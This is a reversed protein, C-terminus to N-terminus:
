HFPLHSPVCINSPVLNRRLMIKVKKHLNGEVGGFYLGTFHKRDFLTSLPFVQDTFIIEPSLKSLWETLNHSEFNPTCLIFIGM